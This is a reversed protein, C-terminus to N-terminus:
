INVTLPCSSTTSYCHPIVPVSTSTYFLLVPYTRLLCMSPHSFPLCPLCLRCLSPLLHLSIHCLLTSTFGGLLSSICAPLLPLLISCAHRTALTRAAARQRAYDCGARAGYCRLPARCDAARRLTPACHYRFAATLFFPLRWSSTTIHLTKCPSPLLFICFLMLCYRKLYPTHEIFPVGPLASHGYAICTFAVSGVGSSCFASFFLFAFNPLVPTHFASSFIRTSPSSPAICFFLCTWLMSAFLLCSLPAAFFLLYLLGPSPTCCM